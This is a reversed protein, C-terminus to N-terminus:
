MLGYSEKYLVGGIPLITDLLIEFQLGKKHLSKHLKIPAKKSEKKKSETNDFHLEVEYCKENELISIIDLCPQFIKLPAKEIIERWDFNIM